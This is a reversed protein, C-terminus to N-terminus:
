IPEEEKADKLGRGGQCLQAFLLDTPKLGGRGAGGRGRERWGMRLM